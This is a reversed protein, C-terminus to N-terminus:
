VSNEAALQQRMQLSPKPTLRSDFVSKSKRRILRYNSNSIEQWNGIMENLGKIKKKIQGTYGCMRRRTAGSM